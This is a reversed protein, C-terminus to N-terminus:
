AHIEGIGLPQGLAQILDEQDQGATKKDLLVGGRGIVIIRDAYRAALEPFQTTYIVCRGRQTAARGLRRFAEMGRADMGAAFPEDLLWIQPDACYLALLSAKYIQGRSLDAVPQFAVELLGLSELWEELDLPADAGIGRWLESFIAANRVTDAFGFFLGGSPLMALKRRQEVDERDLRKGDVRVEGRTWGLIGALCALLTTKGAGNVGLVAVLEGEEFSLSLRELVKVQGYYKQLDHTELLAM